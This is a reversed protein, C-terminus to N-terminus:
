FTVLYPKGGLVDNSVHHLRLQFIPYARAEGNQTAGLVLTESELWTAEAAAVVAPDTLAPFTGASRFFRDEDFAVNETDPPPLPAGTLGDGRGLVAPEPTPAAEDPEVMARVLGDGSVDLRGPEGVVELTSGAEVHGLVSTLAQLSVTSSGSVDVDAASTVIGELAVRSGESAAVRWGGGSSINRVEDTGISSGGTASVTFVPLDIEGVITVSAGGSVELSDFRALVLLVFTGDLSDGDSSVSIAGDSVETAVRAHGGDPATVEIREPAGTKQRVTVTLAGDVTVSTFEEAPRFETSVGPPAENTAADQAPAEPTGGGCAIAVAILLGGFSTLWGRNTM